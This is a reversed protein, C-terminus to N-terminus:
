RNSRSASMDDMGISHAGIAVTAAEFGMRTRTSPQFFLLAVTKGAAVKPAALGMEFAEATQCFEDIDDADIAKASLLHKLHGTRNKRIFSLPAPRAVSNPAEVSLYSM